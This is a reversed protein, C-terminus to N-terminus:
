NRTEAKIHLWDGSGVQSGPACIPRMAMWSKGRPRWTSTKGDLSELCCIVWASTTSRSSHDSSVPLPHAEHLLCSLRRPLRPSACNSLSYYFSFIQLSSQGASVAGRAPRGNEVFDGDGHCSDAFGRCIECLMAHVLALFSVHPMDAFGLKKALLGRSGEDGDFGAFVAGDGWVTTVLWEARARLWAPDELVHLNWSSVGSAATEPITERQATGEWFGVLAHDCGDRNGFVLTMAVCDGSRLLIGSWWPLKGDLDRTKASASVGGGKGDARAAFGWKEGLVSEYGWYLPEDDERGVIQRARLWWHPVRSRADPLRQAAKEGTM